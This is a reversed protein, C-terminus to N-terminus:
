VPAFSTCRMQVLSIRRRAVISAVVPAYAAVTPGPRRVEKGAVRSLPRRGMEEYLLWLGKSSLM